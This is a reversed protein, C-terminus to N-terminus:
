SSTNNYKITTMQLHNTGMSSVWTMFVTIAKSATDGRDSVCNQVAWSLQYTHGTMDTVVGAASGAPQQIFSQVQKQQDTSNFNGAVYTRANLSSVVSGPNPTSCSLNPGTAALNVDTFPLEKLTEMFSIALNNADTRHMAVASGGIARIHMAMVALIGITLLFIAILAEIM